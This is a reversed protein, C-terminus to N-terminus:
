LPSSRECLLAPWRATSSTGRQGPIARRAHKVPCPSASRVEGRGTRRLESRPLRRMVKARRRARMARQMTAPSAQTPPSQISHSRAVGDSAMRRNMPHGYIISEVARAIVGRRASMRGAVAKARPPNEERGRGCASGAARGRQEEVAPLTPAPTCGLPAAATM